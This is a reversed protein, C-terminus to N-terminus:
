GNSKRCDKKFLIKFHEEEYGYNWRLEEGAQIDELAFFGFINILKYNDKASGRVSVPFSACEINYGGRSQKKPIGESDYLFNSNMMAMINDGAIMTKPIFPVLGLIHAMKKVDVSMCHHQCAFDVTNLLSVPFFRGGYVGIAEGKKIKRKAVVMGQGILSQEGKKKVDDPTFIRYELMEDYKNNIDTQQCLFEKILDISYINETESGIGVSQEDDIKIDTLPNNFRDRLPHRYTNVRNYHGVTTLPQESITSGRGEKLQRREDLTLVRELSSVKDLPATFYVEESPILDSIDYAPSDDMDIYDTYFADFFIDESEKGPEMGYKSLM